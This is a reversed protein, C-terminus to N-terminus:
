HPSSPYLGTPRWRRGARPRRKILRGADHGAPGRKIDPGGEKCFPALHVPMRAAPMRAAPMRAAPMWPRKSEIRGPMRVAPMRAAPPRSGAEEATQVKTPWPPWPCCTPRWSPRGVCTARTPGARAAPRGPELRAGTALPSAADKGGPWWPRTPWKRCLPWVRRIHPPPTQYSSNEHQKEEREM